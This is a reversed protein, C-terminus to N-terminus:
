ALRPHGACLTHGQDDEFVIERTNWPTDHPPKVITAGARILATALAGVDAVDLYLHLHDGSRVAAISPDPTDVQKLHVTQGGTSIGAYFDQFRFVEAFGQVRTYFRLSAALDTTRLQPTIARIIM